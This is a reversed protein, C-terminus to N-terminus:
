YDIYELLQHTQLGGWFALVGDITDDEFAAHIADVREAVSGATHGRVTRCNRAEVPEFGHARLREYSRAVLAPDADDLSRSTTVIALRAGPRLAPPKILSPAAKQQLSELM